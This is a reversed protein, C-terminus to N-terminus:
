HKGKKNSYHTSCQIGKSTFTINDPATDKPGNIRGRIWLLGAGCCIGLADTEFYLPEKKDCFKM